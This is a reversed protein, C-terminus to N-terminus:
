IHMHDIQLEKLDIKELLEEELMDAWTELYQIVDERKDRKMYKRDGPTREIIRQDSLNELNVIDQLSLGTNLLRKITKDIEFNSDEKYLYVLMEWDGHKQIGDQHIQKKDQGTLIQVLNGCNCAGINKWDYNSKSAGIRKATNRLADILELSATAM